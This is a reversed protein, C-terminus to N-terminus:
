MAATAGSWHTVDLTSELDRLSASLTKRSSTKQRVVSTNDHLAILYRPLFFTFAPRSRIIQPICGVVPTRCFSPLAIKIQQILRVTRQSGDM